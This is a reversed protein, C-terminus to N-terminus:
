HSLLITDLTINFLMGNLCLVLLLWSVRSHLTRLLVLKHIALTAHRYSQFKLFEKGWFGVCNDILWLNLRCAHLQFGKIAEKNTELVTKPHSSYVFCYWLDNEYCWFSMVSFSKRKVSCWFLQRDHLRSRRFWWM